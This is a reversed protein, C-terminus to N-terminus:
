GESAPIRSADAGRREEILEGLRDRTEDPLRKLEWRTLKVLLMPSTAVVSASRMQKEVLGMEGFVDGANLSAITKGDRVVDATGEEIGVLETSYDGERVLYAGEEVSTETAFTAVRRLDDDGLEAFLSISRLRNPDM